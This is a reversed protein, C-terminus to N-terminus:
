SRKVIALSAVYSIGAFAGLLTFIVAFDNTTIETSGAIIVPRNPDFLALRIPEPNAIIGFFVASLIATFTVSYTFIRQNPSLKM